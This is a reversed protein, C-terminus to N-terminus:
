AGRGELRALRERLEDMEARLSKLTADLSEGPSTSRQEGAKATKTPPPTGSSKLWGQAAEELIQPPLPNVLPASRSAAKRAPSKKAKAM